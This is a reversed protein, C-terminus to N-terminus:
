LHTQIGTRKKLVRAAAMWVRSVNESLESAVPHWAAFVQKGRFDVPTASRRLSNYDNVLEPREIVTGVVECAENGLCIIVSLNRMHRFVIDNLIRRLCIQLKADSFNPLSGRQRGDNRLLGAMVSGYLKTGPLAGSLNRLSRNTTSGDEGPVAHRWPQTCPNAECHIRDGEEILRRFTQMPGADKALLLVAADWDNFGNMTETGYLRRTNDARQKDTLRSHKLLEHINTYYPQFRDERVWNPLPPTLKIRSAPGSNPV